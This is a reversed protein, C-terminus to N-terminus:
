NRIAAQVIEKPCDTEIRAMMLRSDKKEMIRVIEPSLSM